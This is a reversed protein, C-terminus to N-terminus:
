GIKFKGAILSCFVNLVIHSFLFRYPKHFIKRGACKNWAACNNSKLFQGAQVDIGNQVIISNQFEDLRCM